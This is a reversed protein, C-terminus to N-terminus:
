NVSTARRRRATQGILVLGFFVLALTSTEPVVTPLAIVAIGGNGNELLYRLAVYDLNNLAAEGIEFYSITSDLFPDGLQFLPFPTMMGETLMYLGELNGADPDRGHFLITGVDNISVGRIGEFEEGIGDVLQPASTASVRYLRKYPDNQAYFVVEGEDNLSWRFSVDIDGNVRVPTGGAPIIYLDQYKVSPVAAEMVRYAIDGNNNISVRLRVDTESLTTVLSTSVGNWLYIQNGHAYVIHGFDNIAQATIGEDQKPFGSFPFTDISPLLSGQWRRITWEPNSDQSKLDRLAALGSNNIAIGENQRIDIRQVYGNQAVHAYYAGGDIKRFVVQNLDNLAPVDPLNFGGTDSAYNHVLTFDAKVCTTLASLVLMIAISAPRNKM